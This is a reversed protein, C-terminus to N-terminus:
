RSPEVLRKTRLYAEKSPTIHDVCLAVLRERDGTTLAEIMQGHEDRAQALLTPDGIRYSRIAHAIWAHDAIAKVLYPNGCAAFFTDHFDNNLRYVARLDGAEVAAAHAEHIASLDVVLADAAPLPILEAAHRQLLARMEYLAEVEETAFDRVACGKNRARVVIGQRELEALAQRVVHRKAGSREMLVDEVLRERPKLQGFIIDEELARVLADVAGSVSVARESGNARPQRAPQASPARKATSPQPKGM